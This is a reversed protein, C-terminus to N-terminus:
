KTKDHSIFKLSASNICYRQHTPPPGDNFLHGLHANCKACRVEERIMGHSKDLIIKLKKNDRLDYFSPWGCGSSFKYESDFLETGCVVCNYSGKEFHNWYEGTFARETGSEQTVHFQMPTLINKLDINDEMISSDNLFTNGDQTIGDKVLFIIILIFLGKKFLSLINRMFFSKNM